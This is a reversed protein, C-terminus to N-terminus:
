CRVIIPLPVSRRARQYLYARARRQVSIRTTMRLGRFRTFSREESEAARLLM